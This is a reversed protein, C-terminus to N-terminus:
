GDIVPVTHYGGYQSNPHIEKRSATRFVHSSWISGGNTQVMALDYLVMHVYIQIYVYVDCYIYIYTYVYIYIYIYIYIYM